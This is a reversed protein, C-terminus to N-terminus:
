PNTKFLGLKLDRFSYKLKNFLTCILQTPFAFSVILASGVSIRAGVTLSSWKRM